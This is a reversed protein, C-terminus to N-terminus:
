EKDADQIKIKLHFLSTTSSQFDYEMTEVSQTWELRELESIWNTFDLNNATMGEIMILGLQYEINKSPSIPKGLPQYTIEELLISHPVKYALLDLYYSVKSNSTSLAKELRSEKSAVKEKLQKLRLIGNENLVAEERLDEVKGHYYSFFAFNTLLIFLLLGIVFNLLLKFNRQYRYEEKGKSISEFLNTDEEKVGYLGKLIAGLSLLYENSVELGNIDYNKSSTDNKKSLGLNRDDEDFTIIQSHTCIEKEQIFPVINELGSLGLSITYVSLKAEKLVEIFSHVEDKRVISVVNHNKLTYGEFYLSEDDMNPFLSHALARGTQKSNNAVKTLVGKANFSLFVPISKEMMKITDQIQDFQWQNEIVLEDKQRKLELLFFCTSDATHCIDMGYFRTGLNVYQQIARIM